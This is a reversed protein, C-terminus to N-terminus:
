TPLATAEEPKQAIILKGAELARAKNRINNALDLAHGPFVSSAILELIAAGFQQDTM